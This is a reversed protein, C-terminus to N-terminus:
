DIFIVVGPLKQNSRPNM